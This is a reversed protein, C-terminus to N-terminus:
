KIDRKAFMKDISDEDDNVVKSEVKLHNTREAFWKDMEMNKNFQKYLILYNVLIIVSLLFLIVMMLMIM